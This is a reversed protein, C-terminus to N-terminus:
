RCGVFGDGRGVIKIRLGYSARNPAAAAVGQVLYRYVAANKKPIKKLFM